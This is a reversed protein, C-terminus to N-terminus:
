FLRQNPSKLDEDDAVVDDYLIRWTDMWGDNSIWYRWLMPPYAHQLHEKLYYLSENLSHGDDLVWRMRGDRRAVPLYM